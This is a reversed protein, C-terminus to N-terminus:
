LAVSFPAFSRGVGTVEVAVAVAIMVTSPFVILQFTSM